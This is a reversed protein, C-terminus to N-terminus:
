ILWIRNIRLLLQVAYHRDTYHHEAKLNEFAATLQVKSIIELNMRYSSFMDMFYPRFVCNFFFSKM